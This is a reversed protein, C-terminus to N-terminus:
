ENREFKLKAKRYRTMEIKPKRGLPKGTHRIGNDKLYNRNERTM